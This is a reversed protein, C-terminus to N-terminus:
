GGETGRVPEKSSGLSGNALRRIVDRCHKLELLEEMDARVMIRVLDAFGVKPEWGLLARAKSADGQLLEVETPRFYRRDIRVVVSGPKPSSDAGPAAHGEKELAPLAPEPFDGVSALVGVEDAGTGKWEICMGAEAFARECFERVSHSEGTAVVFDDPHDLQLIRWMAEVYDPAYGWDRRAELNGLYVCQQLGLRIRAVARSIKRTVFTEGRRPSEHNFLIGNSAFIGYAERYNRVMHYAYLKAAAYPSRPEFPTKENQPAPASGFMESSSAQYFRAKVGSRRLAELLRTTGLGVVDGTYDPMDFSVRVHSQAALHYVEQPQVNYILHALQGSDSLDGYHLFIRAEPDHPDRYIHEIRDTNFTSSRRILGHVEYGKDLLFEALYSGDQGTIGTILAIEAM